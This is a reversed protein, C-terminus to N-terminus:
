LVQVGAFRSAEKDDGTPPERFADEFALDRELRRLHEAVADRLRPEALVPVGRKKDYSWFELGGIVVAHDLLDVMAGPGYSTVVQSVRAKGDPQLGLHKGWNGGGAM